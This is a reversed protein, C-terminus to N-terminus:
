RESVYTEDEPQPSPSLAKLAHYLVDDSRNRVKFYADSGFYYRGLLAEIDRQIRGKAHIAEDKPYTIGREAIFELFDLYDEEPLHYGTLFSEVSYAPLSRTLREYVFLEVLNERVIQRYFSIKTSSDTPVYIDPMIGGGDYVVRGGATTYKRGAFFVLSDVRETGDASVTDTLGFIVPNEVRKLDNDKYAKQISRGLPTYYRAITLNLASGDGFGFQEQVLGKGFSRRGVIIGRDLDQIAGAVIESSSASLEDILVALEMDSFHGDATTYYDTRSEHAGQTYVLLHRDDFFQSALSTAASFYGGGNERLDMILKTAGEKALRDLANRFEEATRAGFRRVKIYATQPAIIYAADISSVEIRERTVKLPIPLDVGDRQIGLELVSGRRGRIKGEIEKDSAGVGAIAEGNVTILKDGVRLGAQQAPGNAILGVALLTDNLRYYEVGIGEFSGELTEQQMRAESPKLYSSHPDLQDIIQDIALEQIEDVNVSDVYNTAILDIMRQVKGTKDTMGLPLLSTSSSNHNEDMYNQGLLLGIFLAGAYAASELLNKKTKERM